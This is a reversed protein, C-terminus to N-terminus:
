KHESVLAPMKDGAAGKVKTDSDCWTFFVKGKAVAEKIKDNTLATSKELWKLEAKPFLAAMNTVDGKEHSDFDACWNGSTDGHHGVYVTLGDVAKLADAAKALKVAFEKVTSQGKNTFVHDKYEIIQAKAGTASAFAAAAVVIAALVAFRALTREAFAPRTPWNIKATKMPNEMM